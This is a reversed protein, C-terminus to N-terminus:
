IERLMKLLIIKFEKNPLEQIEMEKPDMVPLECHEKSSTMSKQNKTIRYGQTPIQM